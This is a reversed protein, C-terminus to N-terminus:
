VRTPDNRMIIMVFFVVYRALGRWTLVEVTFFDAAAL